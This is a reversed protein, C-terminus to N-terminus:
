WPHKDSPAAAPPAAQKARLDEVLAGLEGSMRALEDDGRPSPLLSLVDGQRIRRAATALANLRRAHRAAAFWSATTAIVALALGWLALRRQMAAVPAYALAAPQRVVYLAGLGRLERVGRSRAFSTLYAADGAIEELFSGRTQRAEPLVPAPLPETWGSTGSDFLPEGGAAYVTLGLRERRASEPLAGILTARMSQWRLQAVLVGAFKGSADLLPVAVALFRPPEGGSARLERALEPEDRVEGLFAQARAGRFWPRSEAESKELAGQTAVVIRGGADALGLWAADPTHDLLAELAHRRDVAPTAPDRFPALTAAFHLARAREYLTRDLGDALQAALAAFNPGSQRELQARAVGGALAVALLVFAVAGAGVLLALRTALRRRPDAAAWTPEAALSTEAAPTTM